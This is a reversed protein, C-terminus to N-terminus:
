CIKELSIKDTSILILKDGDKFTYNNDPNVVTPTSNNKKNEVALLIANYQDKLLLYYNKVTKGIWSTPANMKYFQNGYKSNLLENLVSVIGFNQAAAAMIYGAYEDSVIVEEVGAMKLHTENSRNLLEVCTFVKKSLKEIILAALVTRADRDQDSRAITKDPLIFAILAREVGANKLVEIKTYDDKIIYIKDRDIINYNLPPDTKFEAIIVIPILRQNKNSQFEEIILKASRNWGCIIIHNKLDEMELDKVNTGGILKKVMTASIVGTLFAFLTIGALMLLLAISKGLLTKPMFNLPEGSIMSMTSWMITEILSGLAPNAPGEVARILMGGGLIVMLIICFVMVYGKMGEWLMTYVPLIRRNVLVGLRFIRLLRLFRLVRIHGVMPIVALLDLWYSKFFRSKKRCALFRIFLEIIFIGTIIDNVVISADYQFKSGQAEWFAELLVSLISLFILGAIVIDTYKHNIFKELRPKASM